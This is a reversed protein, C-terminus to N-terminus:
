GRELLSLREDWTAAQGKWREERKACEEEWTTARQKWEAKAQQLSTQHETKYILVTLIYRARDWGFESALGPQAGKTGDHPVLYSGPTSSRKARALM